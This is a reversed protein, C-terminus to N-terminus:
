DDEWRLRRASLRQPVAVEVKALLDGPPKGKREVGRGKVRLVRGSPTGAPLKVKVTSGDLTPVEVTSGLTAEDFTVPVTLTLNDGDRGFVPHPAVQVTLMLDGAPSGPDGPNGKGRLRIKQGDKVGAPSRATIRSCNATSLTVTSGEVADRFPLTTRAEFERDASARLQRRRERDAELRESRGQKTETSM